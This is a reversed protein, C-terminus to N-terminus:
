YCCYYCASYGKDIAQKVTLTIYVNPAHSCYPKHYRKGYKTIYVIPSTDNENQEYDNEFSSDPSNSINKYKTEPGCSCCIIAVILILLTGIVKKKM